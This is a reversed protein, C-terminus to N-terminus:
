TPGMRARSGDDDPDDPYDDEAIWSAYDPEESNDEDIPSWNM